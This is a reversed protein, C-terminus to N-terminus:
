RVRLSGTAEALRWKLMAAGVDAGAGPVPALAVATGVAERIRTLCVERDTPLLYRQAELYVRELGDVTHSSRRWLAEYEAPTVGADDRLTTLPGSPRRRTPPGEVLARLTTVSTGM